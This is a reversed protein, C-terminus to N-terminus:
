TPIQLYSALSTADRFTTSTVIAVSRAGNACYVTLGDIRAVWARGGAIERGAMPMGFPRESRAVLAEGSGVRYYTLSLKVGDVTM